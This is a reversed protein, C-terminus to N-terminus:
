FKRYKKMSEPMVPQGNIVSATSNAHMILLVPLIVPILKMAKGAFKNLTKKIKM